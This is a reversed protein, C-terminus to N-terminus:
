LKPFDELTEWKGNELTKAIYYVYGNTLAFYPAKIYFNYQFVQNLSKETLALEFSKCEILLFPKGNRDFTLVDTRKSMKEINLGSEVSILAPPYNKLMLEHILHQRVWEEPTLAVFKKRIVDFIFLKEGKQQIRPFFSSFNLKPFKM